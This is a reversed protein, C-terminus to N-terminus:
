VLTKSGLLTYMGKKHEADLIELAEERTIRRSTEPNHELIFDVFLKGIIMCVQTPQCPNERSNRCGCEYVAIDPSANLVINRALSYPIIRELDQLPIEKDLTVIAKAHEYTLVKGHYRDAHWEKWRGLRPHIHNVLVNIYQNTWRGYIYAHLANLNVLNRLGGVQMFKLTSPRLLHWREGFLWIVTLIGLIVVFELM